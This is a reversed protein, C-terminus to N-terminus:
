GQDKTGHCFPCTAFSHLGSSQIKLNPPRRWTNAPPTATEQNEQSPSETGLEPTPSMGPGKSMPGLLSGEVIENGNLHILPVLGGRSTGHQMVCPGLLCRWYCLVSNCPGTWHWPKRKRSKSLIRPVRSIMTPYSTRIVCGASVMHLKGGAQCRRSYSPCGFPWLRGDMQQVLVDSLKGVSEKHISKFEKWWSLPVPNQIMQVQICDDPCEVPNPGRMPRHGAQSAAEPRASLTTDTKKNLEEQLTPVISTVMISPHSKLIWPQPHLHTPLM